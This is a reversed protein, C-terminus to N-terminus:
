LKSGKRPTFSPEWAQWTLPAAGPCPGAPPPLPALGNEQLLVSSACGHGQNCPPLEKRSDHCHRRLVGSAEAHSGYCFLLQGTLVLRHRRSVCPSMRLFFAMGLVDHNPVAHRVQGQVHRHAQLGCPRCAAQPGSLRAKRRVADCRAKSRLVGLIQLASPRVLRLAGFHQLEPSSPRRRSGDRRPFPSTATPHVPHLPPGEEVTGSCTRLVPSPLGQDATVSAERSRGSPIQWPACHRISPAHARPPSFINFYKLINVQLFPM